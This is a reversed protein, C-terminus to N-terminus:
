WTPRTEAPRALDSVFFPAAPRAAGLLRALPVGAAKAKLDWLAVDVACYARAALGAFGVHRFRAEAKAFLRDTDRPDEGVVLSSLESDVLSRVAAAGPGLVYSFGLGTLGGDTEVHVLILDVADPGAPAPAALPVRGRVPLPVRLHDSILKTIQM